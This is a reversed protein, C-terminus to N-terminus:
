PVRPGFIQPQILDSEKIRRSNRRLYSSVNEDEWIARKLGALPGMKLEDNMMHVQKNEGDEQHVSRSDVTITM